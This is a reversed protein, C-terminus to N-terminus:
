PNKAEVKSDTITSTDVVTIPYVLPPVWALSDLSLCDFLQQATPRDSVSESWCLQVLGWLTESFGLSEADAPKEPREGKAIAFV